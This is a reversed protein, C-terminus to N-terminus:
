ELLMCILPATDWKLYLKLKNRVRQLRYLTPNIWLIQSFKVVLSKWVKHGSRRFTELRM